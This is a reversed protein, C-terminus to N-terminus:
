LDLLMQNGAPAAGAAAPPKRRPHAKKLSVTVTGDATASVPQESPEFGAVSVRLRHTRQERALQLPLRAPEGDLTVEAGAPVGQVQITVVPPLAAPRAEV